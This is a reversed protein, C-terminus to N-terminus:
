WYVMVSMVVVVALAVVVVAAFPKSRPLFMGAVPPPTVSELVLIGGLSRITDGFGVVEFQPVVNVHDNGMTGVGM